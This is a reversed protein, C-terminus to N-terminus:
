FYSNTERCHLFQFYFITEKMFPGIKIIQQASVQFSQLLSLHLDVFKFIYEFNSSWLEVAKFPYKGQPNVQRGRSLKLQVVARLMDCSVSCLLRLGARSADHHACLSPSCLPFVILHVRCSSSCFWSLGDRPTQNCIGRAKRWWLCVLVPEFISHLEFYCLVSVKMKRRAGEDADSSCFPLHKSFVFAVLTGLDSKKQKSM